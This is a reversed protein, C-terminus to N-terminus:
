PTPHKLEDQKTKWYSAPKHMATVGDLVDERSKRAAFMGHMYKLKTMKSKIYQAYQDVSVVQAPNKQFGRAMMVAFYSVHAGDNLTDM